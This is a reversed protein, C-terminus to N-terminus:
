QLNARGGKKSRKDSKKSVDKQYIHRYYHFVGFGGYIAFFAGGIVLMVNSSAIGGDVRRYFIIRHLQLGNEIMLVGGVTCIGACVLNLWPNRPPMRYRM